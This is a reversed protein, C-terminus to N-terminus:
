VITIDAATLGPAGALTAVLQSGGSGSGDADYYLQGTSSNYVLRDDADQGTSLGAGSRFSGASGLGAFVADDFALDDEASIFGNVTDANAAGMESFVFVDNGVGGNLTDVGGLGDLTDDDPGGVLSDNGNTGVLNM